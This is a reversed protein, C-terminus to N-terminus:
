DMPRLNCKALNQYKQCAWHFREDCYKCKHMLRNTHLAMHRKLLRKEPNRYTCVRCRSVKDQHHSLHRLLDQPWKYKKGCNGAFCSHKQTSAHINYHLMLRSHFTFKLHCTDCKLAQGRHDYCHNRLTNPVAFKKGCDECELKKGAYRNKHHLNWERVSHSKYDCIACKFSYKWKHRKM